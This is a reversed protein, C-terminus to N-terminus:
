SLINLLIHLNIYLTYKKCSNVHTCSWFSKQVKSLIRNFQGQEQQAHCHSDKEACEPKCNEYKPHWFTICNIKIFITQSTHIACGYTIKAHWAYMPHGAQRCAHAAHHVCSTVARATVDPM